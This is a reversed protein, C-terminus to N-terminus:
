VSLSLPPKLGYKDGNKVFGVFFWYHMLRGRLLTHSGTGSIRLCTEKNQLCLDNFGLTKNLFCSKIEYFPVCYNKTLTVEVRIFWKNKGRYM